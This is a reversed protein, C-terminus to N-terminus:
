VLSLPPMPVEQEGQWRWLHLCGPHFNVYKSAPPHYQIATEEQDFFLNKVFCMEEWTPTELSGNISVSVHDWGFIDSAQIFLKRKCPSVIIYRGNVESVGTIPQTIRALKLRPDLRNRM